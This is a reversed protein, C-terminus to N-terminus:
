VKNPFAKLCSVFLLFLPYGIREHSYFLYKIILVMVLLLHKKLNPLNAYPINLTAFQRYAFSLDLFVSWDGILIIIYLLLLFSCTLFKLILKATKQGRGLFLMIKSKISKIFKSNCTSFCRCRCFCSGM